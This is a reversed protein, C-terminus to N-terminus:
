FVSETGPPLYTLFNRRPRAINPIAAVAHAPVVTEPVVEGLGLAGALVGATATVVGAPAGVGWGTIVGARILEGVGIQVGDGAGLTNM